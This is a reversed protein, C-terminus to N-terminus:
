RKGGEVKDAVGELLRAEADNSADGDALMRAARLRLAFAVIERVLISLSGGAVLGQAQSQLWELM